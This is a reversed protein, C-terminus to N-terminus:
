SAKENFMNITSKSEDNNNRSSNNSPLSEELEEKLASNM